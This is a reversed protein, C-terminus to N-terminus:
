WGESLVAFVLILALPLPSAALLWMRRPEYKLHMYYLAVLMAKWLALFVLAGIIATKSLALFAVGVEILTMLFLALWVAMYNTRHAPEAVDSTADFPRRRWALLVLGGGVLGGFLAGALAGAVTETILFGDVAVFFAAVVAFSLVTNRLNRDNM